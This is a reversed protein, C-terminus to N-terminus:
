AQPPLQELVDVGGDPGVDLARTSGKKAKEGLLTEVLDGHVCAVVPGSSERFLRLAAQAGAGEALAETEEVQPGRASALPCVTEVCRVYPSSLIRAIEHGALQEVLAEAQRRGRGDLPRRRDDGEWEDRKGARAHRVLYVIV